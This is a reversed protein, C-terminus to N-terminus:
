EGDSASAAAQPPRQREFTYILDLANDLGSIAELFLRSTLQYQVTFSAADQELSVGYRVYLRPLVYASIQAETGYAGTATGM